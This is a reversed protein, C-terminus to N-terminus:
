AEDGRSHSPGAARPAQLTPPSGPRAAAPAPRPSPSPSRPACLLLGRRWSGRHMQRALRGHQWGDSCARYLAPPPLSAVEACTIVWSAPDGLFSHQPPPDRGCAPWPPLAQRGQQRAVDQGPRRRTGGARACPPRRPPACVVGESSGVLELLQWFTEPHAAKLAYAQLLYRLMDRSEESQLENLRGSPPTDTPLANHM